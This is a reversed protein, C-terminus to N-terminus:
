VHTYNLEFICKLPTVIHTWKLWDAGEFTKNIYNKPEKKM